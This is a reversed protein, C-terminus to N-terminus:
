DDPDFFIRPDKAQEFAVAFCEDGRFDEVTADKKVGVGHLPEPMRGDRSFADIDDEDIWRIDNPFSGIVSHVVAQFAEHLGADEGRMGEDDDFLAGVGGDRGVGCEFANRFPAISMGGDGDEAIM